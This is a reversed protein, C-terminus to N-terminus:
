IFAYKQLSKLSYFQENFRNEMKIMRRKWCKLISTSFYRAIALKQRDGKKGTIMQINCLRLPKLNIINTKHNTM